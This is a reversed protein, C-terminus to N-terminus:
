ALTKFYDEVAKVAGALANLVSQEVKPLAFGAEQLLRQLGELTTALLPTRALNWSAVLEVVGGPYISLAKESVTKIALNVAQYATTPHQDSTVGLIHEPKVGLGLLAQAIAPQRAVVIVPLQLRELAPAASVAEEDLVYLPQQSRVVEPVTGRLSELTSLREPATDWRTGPSVERGPLVPVRQKGNSGVDVIIGGVDVPGPVPTPAKAGAEPEVVVPREAQGASKPPALAVAPRREATADDTIERGEELGVLARTLRGEMTSELGAQVRMTSASDNPLALALQSTSFLLLTVLAVLRQGIM